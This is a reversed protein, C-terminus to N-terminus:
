LGRVEPDKGRRVICLVSRRSRQGVSKLPLIEYPRTRRGQLCVLKGFCFRRGPTEAVAEITELDM